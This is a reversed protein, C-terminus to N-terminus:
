DVLFMCIIKSHPFRILKPCMRSITTCECSFFNGSIYERPFNHTYFLDPLFLDHYVIYVCAREKLSLILVFASPFNSVQPRVKIGKLSVSIALSAQYM